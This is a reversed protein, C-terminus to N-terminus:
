IIVYEKNFLEEGLATFNNDYWDDNEFADWWNVVIKVFTSDKWLEDFLSKSKNTSILLIQSKYACMTSILNFWFTRIDTNNCYAMEDIILVDITVGKFKIHNSPTVISIKKEYGYIDRVILTDMNHQIIEINLQRLTHILNNNTINRLQTNPVVLVINLDRQSEDVLQAIYNQCIVSKGSLRCSNVMVHNNYKMSKLINSQYQKLRM